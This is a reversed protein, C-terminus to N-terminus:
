RRTNRPSSKGSASRTRANNNPGVIAGTPGPGHARAAVVPFSIIRNAGAALLSEAAAANGRLISHNVHVHNPITLRAILVKENGFPLAPIPAVVQIGLSPVVKRVRYCSVPNVISSTAFSKRARISTQM